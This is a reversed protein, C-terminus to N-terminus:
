NSLHRLRSAVAGDPKLVLALTVLVTFDTLAAAL